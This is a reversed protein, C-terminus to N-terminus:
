AGPYLAPPATLNLHKSWSGVVSNVARCASVMRGGYRGSRLTIFLTGTITVVRSAPYFLLESSAPTVEFEEGRRFLIFEGNSPKCVLQCSKDNRLM